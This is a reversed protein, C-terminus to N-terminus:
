LAATMRKKDGDDNTGETRMSRHWMRHNQCDRHGFYM